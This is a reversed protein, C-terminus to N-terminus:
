IIPTLQRKFEPTRNLNANYILATIGNYYKKNVFARLCVNIIITIVYIYRGVNKLVYVHSQVVHSTWFALDCLRLTPRPSKKGV